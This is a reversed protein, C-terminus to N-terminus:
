ARCATPAAPSGTSSTPWSTSFRARHRAHGDAAHPGIGRLVFPSSALGLLAGLATAVVLGVLPDPMLHKAFLAAAYCGVGFFAAHGLSVIGSYGLILDLSVAFLALIAIQNWLAAHQPFLVLALVAVLLLALEYPRWRAAVALAVARAGGFAAPQPSAPVVSGPRAFLGQPRVFLIAIM